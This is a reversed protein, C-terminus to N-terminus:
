AWSACRARRRRGARAQAAVARAAEATEVPVHERVETFRAVVADGLPVAIERVRESDRASAVLLLRSVGLRAVEAALRTGAAGAGFVIRAPLADYTFEQV